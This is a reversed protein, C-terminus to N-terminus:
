KFVNINQWVYKSLMISIDLGAIM